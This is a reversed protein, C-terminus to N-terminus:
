GGAAYCGDGPIAETGTACWDAAAPTSFEDVNQVDAPFQHTRTAGLGLAIVGLVLGARGLRHAPRAATATLTGPAM